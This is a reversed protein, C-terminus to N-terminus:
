FPTSPERKRRVLMKQWPWTFLFEHVMMNKPRGTGPLFAFEYGTLMKVLVLKVVVSAFFRGPCATKGYGFNLCTRTPTSFLLEKAALKRGVDDNGALEGEPQEARARFSRLGDFELPRLIHEPDNEIAYIPLCVYTGAPVHIGNSFTYPEQFLRKLGLTTPPSLRQSERLVSDLRYLQDYPTKHLTSEWGSEAVFKIEDLIEDQLAPGAATVDYLVNVMRLLTTHVAALAVLVLVHSIVDPNRDQGKAMSALWNLLNMDDVNDEQPDWVGADSRRILNQIHPGLLQKAMDLNKRGAWYSPLTLCILSHTWNPFMRLIVITRFLNETYKVSIDLWVQNNCFAPGVIIDAAVRASILALAQYPQFEIWEEAEASPFSDELADTAAKELRPILLPLRPTLRRQVISHHLRNEVILNLGTFHGLLDHELAAQPNAVRSPLAALEELLSLPLVIIRGDNRILHFASHKFREYGKQLLEAARGAFLLNLLFKPAVFTLPSNGFPTNLQKQRLRRVTVADVICYVFFISLVIWHFSELVGRLSIKSLGLQEIM